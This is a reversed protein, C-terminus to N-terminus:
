AGRAFQGFGLALSLSEMFGIGRKLLIRELLAARRRTMARLVCGRDAIVANDGGAAGAGSNFSRWLESCHRAAKKRLEATRGNNM